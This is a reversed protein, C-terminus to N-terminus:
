LLEDIMGAVVQAGDTRPREPPPPSAMLADLAAGWRGAALAEMEIFRCRLFRPMEAVLVDYEIFRGRSTYLIATGNAICDAIIGYGPKTIVVDVARVLDEYRLGAQQLRSQAIGSIRPPLAAVDLATTVIGWRDLCDVRDLALDRAGYGGFSVLALPRDPPLDLVRRVDDRSHTAHQAVFPVDVISRVTEFGGHMPLRWGAAARSYAGQIAPVLRPTTGTEDYAAYIWDWTFNSCVVSPVGLQAAAACALPPADSVVLRAGHGALLAAERAARADLTDHFAAARAITEREDLRLADIQVVGTDVEGRVLAAPARLTLECLWRPATTRVVIRLGPALASLTNIIEFQRAAHGFGHGSIYFAIAAM